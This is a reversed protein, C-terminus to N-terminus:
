GPSTAAPEGLPLWARVCCGQGPQSRVQMQGGEAEIRLRMGALGHASASVAAPDFGVGDDLVTAEVGGAAGWLRVEVREAVAHREINGLAEQVFRYVSLAANAGVPVALLEAQMALGSRQAFERTLIELSAVLGLHGLASPWLDEIIRRKLAIGKNLVEGLHALREDIEPTRLPLRSKLRAVDLKASTLLAGLEDHLERALRSREAEQQMQLHHALDTLQQSCRELQAQPGVHAAGGSHQRKAVRSRPRQRAALALLALTLALLSRGRLSPQKRSPRTRSDNAAM